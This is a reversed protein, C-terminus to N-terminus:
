RALAVPDDAPLGITISEQAVDRRATGHLADWLALGSSFNAHQHPTVNSHHVGHMRPTMVVLSLVREVRLPLRLNAHHFMVEALTLPGWLALTGPRVGILFIQALRWPLSWAMEAAHFRLATSVDLDPDAHHVQHWRWLAPARHLLIHWLYLTYDLMLLGLVREGMAPLGLRPLLGLREREVERTAWNTLPAELCAVAVAAKAGIAANRVWREGQPATRRRLPRRHEWWTLAVLGGVLLWPAARSVSV